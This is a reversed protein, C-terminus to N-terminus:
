CSWGLSMSSNESTFRYGPLFNVICQIISLKILDVDTCKNIHMYTSKHLLLNSVRLNRMLKQRNKCPVDKIVMFKRLDTMAQLLINENVSQM